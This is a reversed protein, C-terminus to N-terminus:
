EENKKRYLILFKKEQLYLMTRIMNYDVWDAADAADMEYEEKMIRILENYDYCAHINEGDNVLGCFAEAMSDIIVADDAGNEMCLDRVAQAAETRPDDNEATPIM